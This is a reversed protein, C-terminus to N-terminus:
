VLVDAWTRRAVIYGATMIIGPLLTAAPDCYRVHPMGVIVTLGMHGLFLLVAPVTILTLLDRDWRAETKTLPPSRGVRLRRVGAAALLMTFGLLPMVTADRQVIHVVFRSISHALVMAYAQPAARVVDVSFDVLAQDRQVQDSYLGKAAAYACEWQVEDYQWYCLDFDMDWVSGGRPIPPEFVPKLRAWALKTSRKELIAQALARNEPKLSPVMDQTLILTAIGAMNTGTFSVLGFHGVLVYRLMCFAFWPVGSVLATGTVFLGRTWGAPVYACLLLACAPVVAVLYQYAPRTQYAAFIALMLALWRLPRQPRALVMFFTGFTTLLLAHGVAETLVDHLALQHTILDAFMSPLCVLVAALSSFGVQRLGAYLVLVGAVHFVLHVWPLWLYNPFISQYVKLFLPYGWTRFDKLGEIDTLDKAALEKYDRTDPYEVVYYDPADNSVAYAFVYAVQLALLSSCAVLVLWGHALLRHVLSM